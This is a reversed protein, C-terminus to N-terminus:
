NTPLTLHTYSVAKVVLGEYGNDVATSLEKSIKEALQKVSKGVSIKTTPVAKFLSSVNNKKDSSLQTSSNQNKTLKDVIQKRQYLPDNRIDTGDFLLVDFVRFEGTVDDYKEDFPNHAFGNQDAQHLGKNNKLAYFETDLIIDGSYSSLNKLISPGYKEELGFLRKGLRSFIKISGEKSDYVVIARIGRVKRDLFIENTGWNIVEKATILSVYDKNNKAKMIDISPQVRVPQAWMSRDNRAEKFISIYDVGKANGDFSKTGDRNKISRNHKKVYFVKGYKSSRIHRRVTIKRYQGM